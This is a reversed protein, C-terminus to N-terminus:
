DFSRSLGIGHVGCDYLWNHFFIRGRWRKLKKDFAALLDKRSARILRGEGPMQSYTMCFPGLSRSHETDCAMDCAPDIEDEIEEVSTVEKYDPKPYSDETVTLVGALYKRLRTFDNRIQLMKKPEHIGGAPHWMPFINGLHNSIPIGHHLDLRISPEIAHVAFAGM